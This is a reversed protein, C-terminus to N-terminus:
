WPRKKSMMLPKWWGFGIWFGKGGIMFAPLEAVPTRNAAFYASMSRHQAPDIVLCLEGIPDAVNQGDHLLRTQAPRVDWGVGARLYVHLPMCGEKGHGLRVGVQQVHWPGHTLAAGLREALRM